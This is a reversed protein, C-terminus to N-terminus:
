FSTKKRRLKMLSQYSFTAALSACFGLIAGKILGNRSTNQLDQKTIPSGGDLLRELEDMRLEIQRHQQLLGAARASAEEGDAVQSELSELTAVLDNRATKLTQGLGDFQKLLDSGTVTLERLANTRLDINQRVANMDSLSKDTLLANSDRAKEYISSSLRIFFRSPSRYCSCLSRSRLNSSFGKRGAIKKYCTGAKIGSRYRYIFYQCSRGRL